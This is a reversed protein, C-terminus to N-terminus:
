VANALLAVERALGKMSDITRRVLYTGEDLANPETGIVMEYRKAVQDAPADTRILRVIDDLARRRPEPPHGHFTLSDFHEPLPLRRTGHGDYATHATHATHATRAGQKSDVLELVYGAFDDIEEIVEEDTEADLLHRVSLLSARINVMATEPSNLVEPHQKWEGPFNIKTMGKTILERQQVRPLFGALQIGLVTYIEYVGLWDARSPTGVLAGGYGCTYCRNHKHGQGLGHLRTQALAYSAKYSLDAHLRSALAFLFRYTRLNSELPPDGTCPAKLTLLKYDLLPNVPLTSAASIKLLLDPPLDALRMRLSDDELEM